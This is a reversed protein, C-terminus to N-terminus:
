FPKKLTEKPMGREQHIKSFYKKPYDKKHCSGTIDIEEKEQNDLYVMDNRNLLMNIRNYPSITMAM